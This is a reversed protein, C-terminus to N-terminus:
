KLLEISKGKLVNLDVYIDIMDLLLVILQLIKLAAATPQQTKVDSLKGTKKNRNQNFLLLFLM